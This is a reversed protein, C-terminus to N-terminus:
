KINQSHYLQIGNIPFQVISHIAGGHKQIAMQLRERFLYGVSGVVGVRISTYNPYKLLHRVVLNEFALDVLQVTQPHHFNNVLFPVFSALFQGAFPEKYIKELISTLNHPCYKTLKESLEVSLDGYQWMRILEKGLYAGSGEDGISYGLSPTKRDVIQGNYYGVSAGTGLIVIIGSEKAFLARAAGLIDSYVDINANTFFISLGGKVKKEMQESACGSGYFFVKRVEKPNLDKPFDLSLIDSYKSPDSHFPNLGITTFEVTDGNPKTIIWHAKSSGSDAVVIM